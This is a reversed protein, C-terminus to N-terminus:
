LVIQVRGSDKLARHMVQIQELSEAIITVQVSLYRGNRSSRYSISEELLSPSHERIIYLVEEKFNDVDEGLVKIPYECPFTIKPPSPQSM